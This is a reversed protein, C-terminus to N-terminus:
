TINEGFCHECHEHDESWVVVLTKADLFTFSCLERTNLRKTQSLKTSYGYSLSQCLVLSVESLCLNSLTLPSLDVWM